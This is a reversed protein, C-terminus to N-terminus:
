EEREAVFSSCNKYIEEITDIIYELGDVRGRFYEADRAKRELEKIYKESVQIYKDEEIKNMTKEKVFIFRDKEIKSM